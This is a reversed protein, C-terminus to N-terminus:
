VLTRALTSPTCVLVIEDYLAPKGDRTGAHSLPRLGYCQFGSRLAVRLSTVNELVVSIRVSCLGVREFAFECMARAMETGLGCGRCSVEGVQCSLEATREEDDVNYLAGFGVFRGGEAAERFVAYLERGGGGATDQAKAYDARFSAALKAPTYDTLSGADMWPASSPDSWWRCLAEMQAEDDPDAAAAVLRRTRMLVGKQPPWWSSVPPAPATTVVASVPAVRQCIATIAALAEDRTLVEEKGEKM